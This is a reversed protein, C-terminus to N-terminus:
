PIPSIPPIFDPRRNPPRYAGRVQSHNHSEIDKYVNAIDFYEPDSENLGHNYAIHINNLIDVPDVSFVFRKRHGCIRGTWGVNVSRIRDQLRTRDIDKDTYADRLLLCKFFVPAAYSYHGFDKNLRDHCNALYNLLEVAEQESRRMEFEYRYFKSKLSPEDFGMCVGLVINLGGARKMLGNDLVTQLFVYDTHGLQIASYIYDRTKWKTNANNIEKARDLGAGPEVTCAITSIMKKPHKRNYQRIAEIHCQGDVVEYKDNIVLIWDKRAPIQGDNHEIELRLKKVKAPNVARNGLIFRLMEYEDINLYTLELNM